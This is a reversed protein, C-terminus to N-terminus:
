KKYTVKEGRQVQQVWWDGCVGCAPSGGTVRFFVMWGGGGGGGAASGGATAKTGMLLSDFDQPEAESDNARHTTPEVRGTTKRWKSLDGPFILCYTWYHYIGKLVLPFIVFLSLRYGWCCATSKKTSAGGRLGRLVKHFGPPIRTSGQHFGPSVGGRVVVSGM